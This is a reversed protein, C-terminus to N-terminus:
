ECKAHLFLDCFQNNYFFVRVNDNFGRVIAFINLKDSLKKVNQVNLDVNAAIWTFHQGMLGIEAAKVLLQNAHDENTMIIFTFYKAEGQIKSLQTALHDTRDDEMKIILNAINKSIKRGSEKLQGTLYDVYIKDFTSDYFLVYDGAIDIHM